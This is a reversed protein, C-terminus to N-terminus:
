TDSDKAKILQKLVIIDFQTLTERKGTLENTVVEKSELWKRIITKASLAGPPRGAGPLAPDGPERSTLTGGNRRLKKQAM